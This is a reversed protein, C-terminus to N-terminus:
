DDNSIEELELVADMLLKWVGAEAFKILAEQDAEITLVCGGDKTDEIDKVTIEM